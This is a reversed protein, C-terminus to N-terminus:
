LRQDSQGQVEGELLFIDVVQNSAGAQGFLAEKKPM